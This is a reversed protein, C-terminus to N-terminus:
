VGSERAFRPRLGRPSAGVGQDRYSGGRAPRVRLKATWDCFSAGDQLVDITAVRMLVVSKRSPIESTSGTLPEFAPEANSKAAITPSTDRMALSNKALKGPPAEDPSTCGVDSTVGPTPAWVGPSIAGGTDPGVDTNPGNGGGRTPGLATFTPAPPIEPAAVCGGTGPKRCVGGKAALGTGLSASRRGAGVSKASNNPVGVGSSSISLASERV